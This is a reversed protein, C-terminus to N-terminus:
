KLLSQVKNAYALLVTQFEDTLEEVALLNAHMQSLRGSWDQAQGKIFNRVLEPDRISLPVIKNADGNERPSFNIVAADITDADLARIYKAQNDAMSQMRDKYADVTEKIGSITRNITYLKSRVRNMNNAETLFTDIQETM